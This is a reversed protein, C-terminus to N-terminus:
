QTLEARLEALTIVGRGHGGAITAQEIGLWDLQQVFERGWLPHQTPRGPSYLDSNYVVGVHHDYVILMDEAHSNPLPLLEIRTGPLALFQAGSLVQIQPKAHGAKALLLAFYRRGDRSVVLKAGQEIYALFGGAHDDHHHTLILHSVPKGPWRQQLAALVARSRRKDFPADVVALTDIGEILLQHHSGGTIHYLREGLPEIEVPQDAFGEAPAGGAVRGLYWQALGADLPDISPLPLPLSAGDPATAGQPLPDIVWEDVIERRVLKGDVRYEVRRAFPAAAAREWDNYLVVEEVAGLTLDRGQRVLRKPQGAEDIWLRYEGSPHAITVICLNDGHQYQGTLLLLAPFREILRLLRAYHRIPSLVKGPAPRFGDVGDRRSATPEAALTERYQWRGPFPYVTEIQWAYEGSGLGPHWAAELQDTSLLRQESLAVYSQGPAHNQGHLRWKVAGAARWAATALYEAPDPCFAAPATRSLAALAVLFLTRRLVKM